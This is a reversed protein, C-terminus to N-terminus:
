PPPSVLSSSSSNRLGPRADAPAQTLHFSSVGWPRVSQSPDLHVLLRQARPLGQAWVTISQDASPLYLFEDGLFVLGTAQAIAASGQFPQVSRLKDFLALQGEHAHPQVLRLVALPMLNPNLGIELRTSALREMAQVWDLRDRWAPVRGLERVTTLWDNRPPPLGARAYDQAEAGNLRRLNDTDIYDQLVDVLTEREAATAGLSGILRLLGARDLLNVPLLASEDLVAFASGDPLGIFRGDAIITGPPNGFGGPVPVRTALLFLAQAQANSAKIRGAAYQQHFGARARLEDVRAAFVGAIFAVVALTVLVM